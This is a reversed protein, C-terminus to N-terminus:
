GASDEFHSVVQLTPEDTPGEWAGPWILGNADVEFLLHNRKLAGYVQKDDGLGAAVVDARTSGPHRRIWRWMELTQVTITRGAGAPRLGSSPSAPPNFKGRKGKKRKRGKFMWQGGRLVVQNTRKLSLLRNSLLKGRMGPFLELIEGHSLGDPNGELADLIDDATAVGGAPLARAPAKAVPTPAVVTGPTSLFGVINLTLMAAREPALGPFGDLSFQGFQSISGNGQNGRYFHMQTDTVVTVYNDTM